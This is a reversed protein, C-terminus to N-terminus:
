DKREFFHDCGDVYSNSFEVEEKCFFIRGNLQDVPPDVVLGFLDEEREVVQWNSSSVFAGNQKVDLTLDAKFEISLGNFEENNPNESFRPCTLYEWNWEGILTNQTALSDWTTEHHCTWFNNPDTSSNDKKSCAILFILVSSAIIIKITKM